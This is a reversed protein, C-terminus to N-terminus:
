WIKLLINFCEKFLINCKYTWETAMEKNMATDGAGRGTGTGTWICGGGIAFWSRFLLIVGNNLLVHCNVIISQSRCFKTHNWILVYSFVKSLIMTNWRGWEYNYAISASCNCPIKTYKWEEVSLYHMMSTSRLVPTLRPTCSSYIWVPHVSFISGTSIAVVLWLWHIPYM